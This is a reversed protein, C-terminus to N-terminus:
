RLGLEKERKDVAALWEQKLNVTALLAARFEDDSYQKFKQPEMARLEKGAAFTTIIKSIHLKKPLYFMCLAAFRAM